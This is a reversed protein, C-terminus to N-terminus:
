NNLPNVFERLDINLIDCLREAQGIKFKDPSKLKKLMTPYSLDLAKALRIKNIDAASMAIRIVQRRKQNMNM